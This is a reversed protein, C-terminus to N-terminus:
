VLVIEMRTFFVDLFNEEVHFDRCFLIIILYSNEKVIRNCNMKPKNNVNERASRNRNMNQM